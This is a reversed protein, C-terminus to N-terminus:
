PTTPAVCISNASNNFHPTCSYGTRCDKDGTCSKFCGAIGGSIADAVCTSGAPCTSDQGVTCQKSCYGGPTYAKANICIQNPCETPVTCPGGISNGCGVAFLGFALVGLARKMM